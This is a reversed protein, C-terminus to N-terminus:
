GNVMYRLVQDSVACDPLSAFQAAGLAASALLSFQVLKMNPQNAAEVIVYM